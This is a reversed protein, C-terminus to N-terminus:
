SALDLRVVENSLRVLSIKVCTLQCTKSSQLVFDTVCFLLPTIALNSFAACLTSTLRMGSAFYHNLLM